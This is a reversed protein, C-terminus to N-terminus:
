YDFQAVSEPSALTMWERGEGQLAVYCPQDKMSKLYERVSDDNHVPFGLGCNIAVGYFIGTRRSNALAQDITLGGKLHVHYDVMPINETGLRIIDRYVEDVVPQETSLQSLDDPLPRVKINKFFTTSGPDHGQLAFTGHNIVRGFNQDARFPPQPE